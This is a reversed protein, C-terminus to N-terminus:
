TLVLMLARKAYTHHELSTESIHLLTEWPM